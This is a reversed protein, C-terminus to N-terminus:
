SFLCASEGLSTHGLLLQVCDGTALNWVRGTGDEGASVAVKGHQDVAISRVTGSHGLLVNLCTGEEQVRFILYQEFDICASAPESLPM